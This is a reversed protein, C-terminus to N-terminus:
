EGPTPAIRKEWERLIDSLEKQVKAKEQKYRAEVRGHVAATLPILNDVDFRREWDDRLPIIHHVEKAPVIKSHTVYSYVCLGKYRALIYGRVKEWETSLYFNHYQKDRALRTSRDYQAQRQAEREAAAQMHKECYRESARIIERCGLWPCFKKLM